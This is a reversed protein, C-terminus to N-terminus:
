HNEMFFQMFATLPDNGRGQMPKIQGARRKGEQEDNPWVQLATHRTGRFELQLQLAKKWGPILLAAPVYNQGDWYPRLILPSALRESASDTAANDPELTHDAPEPKGQFHFVIPLGFAARPYLDQVSHEPEHAWGKQPQPQVLRRIMDAEPWRSRGPRNSEKGPNRGVGVGQRFEQLRGIAENWAAMGSDSSRRLALLGGTAQVEDETVPTLGEVRVAGLGRRTRSGLGGFSAWWRLAQHVQEWCEEPCEIDLKFRIGHTAIKSPSTELRTRDDSLQGQASFLAYASMGPHVHPTSKYTAGVRKYEFADVLKSGAQDIDHVRVRVKSATPGQARIGGWIGCEERFLQRSDPGMKLLRWWHRLQGRISSPRVPLLEDVTRATVGGGFLPTITQCQFTRRQPSSTVLSAWTSEAAAPDLAPNPKRM